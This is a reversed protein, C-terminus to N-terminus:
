GQQKKQQRKMRVFEKFREIEELEEETWDEGEHHAAITHINLDNDSELLKILLEDGKKVFEEFEVKLERGNKLDIFVYDNAKFGNFRVFFGHEEFDKKIQFVKFEQSLSQQRPSIYGAAELLDDLSVLHKVPNSSHIKEIVERAPRERSTGLLIGLLVDMPVGTDSSFQNTSRDDKIINVLRMLNSLDFGYIVRDLPVRFYDAVKQVKDISPSNKDWKYISGRGFGLEKELKPISIGRTECLSQINEVLSM